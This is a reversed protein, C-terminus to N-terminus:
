KMTSAVTMVRDVVWSVHFVRGDNGPFFLTVQCTGNGSELRAFIERCYRFGIVM